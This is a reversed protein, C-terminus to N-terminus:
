QYMFQRTYSIVMEIGIVFGESPDWLLFMHNRLLQKKKLAQMMDWCWGHKPHIWSVKKKEGKRWLTMKFAKILPMSGCRYLPPSNTGIHFCFLELVDGSAYRPIKSINKTLNKVCPSRLLNGSQYCPVLATQMSLDSTGSTGELLRGDCAWLIKINWPNTFTGYFPFIFSMVKYYGDLLGNIGNM